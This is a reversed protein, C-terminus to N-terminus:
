FPQKSMCVGFAVVVFGNGAATMSMKGTNEDIVMTWGTGDDVGEIGEDGGQLILKGDLHESREVPTSAVIGGDHKGTLVKNGADVKFFDPLNVSQPTVMRCPQAPLCENVLQNACVMVKSGDFDGAVTLGAQLLCVALLVTHIIVKM